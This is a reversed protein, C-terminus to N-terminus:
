FLELECIKFSSTQQDEIVELKVVSFSGKTKDLSCNQETVTLGPSFMATKNRNYSECFVIGDMHSGTGMKSTNTGLTIDFNYFQHGTVRIKSISQTKALTIKYWPRAEFGTQACTFPDGDIALKPQQGHYVTSSHIDIKGLCTGLLMLSIIGKLFEMLQLQNSSVPRK